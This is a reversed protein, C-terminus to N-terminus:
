EETDESPAIKEAKLRESPIPGVNFWRIRRKLVRSVIISLPLMIFIFLHFFVHLAISKFGEGSANIDLLYRNDLNPMRTVVPPGTPRVPITKTNRVKQAHFTGKKNKKSM